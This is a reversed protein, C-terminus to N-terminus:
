AMTMSFPVTSLCPGAILMNDHIYVQGDYCYNFPAKLIRESETPDSLKGNIVGLPATLSM